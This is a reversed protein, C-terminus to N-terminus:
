LFVLKVCNYPSLQLVVRKVWKVFWLPIILLMFFLSLITRSYIGSVKMLFLIVITVMTINFVVRGMRTFEELWGYPFYFHFLHQNLSFITYLFLILVFLYFYEKRVLGHIHWHYLNFFIGAMVIYEFGVFLSSVTALLRTKKEKQKALTHVLALSEPYVAQVLSLETRM